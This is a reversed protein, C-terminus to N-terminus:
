MMDEIALFFSYLCKNFLMQIIDLFCNQEM